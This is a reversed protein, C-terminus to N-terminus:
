HWRDVCREGPRWLCERSHLPSLVLPVTLPCFSASVRPPPHASAILARHKMPPQSGVHAGYAEAGLGRAGSGPRQSKNESFALSIQLETTGEVGGARWEAGQDAPVPVVAEPFAPESCCM